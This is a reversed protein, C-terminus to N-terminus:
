DLGAAPVRRWDSIQPVGKGSDFQRVHALWGAMTKLGAPHGWYQGSGTYILNEGEHGDPSVGKIHTTNKIYGWEGPVWDNSSVGSGWEKIMESGTGAVMTVGTAAHCAMAYPFKSPNAFVDKAADVTSVGPKPNWSGSSSRAWYQPNMKMSSGVGWAIKNKADFATKVVGKRAGIHSDLSSQAAASTNGAVPFLRDSSLMDNLIEKELAAASRKTNSYVNGSKSFGTVGNTTLYSDIPAKTAIKRQVIANPSATMEIAPSTVTEQSTDPRIRMRAFDHAFRPESACPSSDPIERQIDSRDQEMSFMSSNSLPRSQAPAFGSVVAAAQAKARTQLMATM